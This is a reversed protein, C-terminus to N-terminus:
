NAALASWGRSDQEPVCVLCPSAPKKDAEKYCTPKGGDDMLCTKPALTAGATCTGAADCAGITCDLGDDDACATKEAKPVMACLGDDCASQLCVGTTGPKWSGAALAVDCDAVAECASEGDALCRGLRCKLNNNCYSDAKCALTVDPPTSCATALTLAACILTWLAFRVPAHITSPM